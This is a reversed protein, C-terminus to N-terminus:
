VRIDITGARPEDSSPPESVAQQEQEVPPPAENVEPTESLAQVATALTSAEASITVTDSPPPAQEQSTERPRERETAQSAGSQKLLQETLLTSSLGSTEDIM